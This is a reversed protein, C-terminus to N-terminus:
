RERERESTTKEVHVKKEISESRKYINVSSHARNQSRFFMCCRQHQQKKTEEYFIGMQATTRKKEEIRM